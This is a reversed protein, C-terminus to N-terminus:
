GERYEEPLWDETTNKSSVNARAVAGGGFIAVLQIITELSLVEGQFIQQVIMVVVLVAAVIMVPESRWWKVM